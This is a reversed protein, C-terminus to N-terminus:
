YKMPDGGHLALEGKAVALWARVFPEAMALPSGEGETAAEVIQRADEPSGARVLQVSLRCAAVIHAPRANPAGPSPMTQPGTAAPQANEVGPSPTTQLWTLAARGGPAVRRMQELLSALQERKGQHGGAMAVHGLAAYWGTTGEPLKEMAQRAYTEADSY